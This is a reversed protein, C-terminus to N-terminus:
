SESHASQKKRNSKSEEVLESSQEVPKNKERMAQQNLQFSEVNKLTRESGERAHVTTLSLMAAAFLLPKLYNM